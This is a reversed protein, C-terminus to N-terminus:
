YYDNYYSIILPNFADTNVKALGLLPLSLLQCTAPMLVMTGHLNHNNWLNQHQPFVYINKVYCVWSLPPGGGGGGKIGM